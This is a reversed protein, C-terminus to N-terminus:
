NKKAIFIDLLKVVEDKRIMDGDMKIVMNRIAKLANLYDHVSIHGLINNDM